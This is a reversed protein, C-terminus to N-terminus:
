KSELYKIAQEDAEEKTMEGIYELYSLKLCLKLYKFM